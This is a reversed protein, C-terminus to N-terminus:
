ISKMGAVLSDMVTLVTSPLLKDACGELERGLINEWYKEAEPVAFDAIDIAGTDRPQHTAM